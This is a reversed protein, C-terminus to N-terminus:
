KHTHEKGEEEDIIDDRRKFIVGVYTGPLRNNSDLRDTNNTQLTITEIPVLELIYGLKNFKLAAYHVNSPKPKTHGSYGTLEVIHNSHNVTFDGAGMIKESRPDFLFSHPIENGLSQILESLEITGNNYFYLMISPFYYFPNYSGTDPVFRIEDNELLVFKYKGEPIPMNKSDVAQGQANAHKLINPQILEINVNSPDRPFDGNFNAINNKVNYLNGMPIYDPAFFSPPVKCLKGVYSQWPPIDKLDPNARRWTLVANLAAGTVPNNDSGIINIDRELLGPVNKGDLKLYLANFNIQNFKFMLNDLNTALNTLEYLFNQIARKPAGGKRTVRRRMRRRNSVRKTVRKRGRRSFKNRNRNRAKKYVKKSKSKSKFTM